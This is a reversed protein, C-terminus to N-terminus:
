KAQAEHRKSEGGDVLMSAAPAHEVLGANVLLVTPRHQRRRRHAGGAAVAVVAAIATFVFQEQRSDGDETADERHRADDQQASM